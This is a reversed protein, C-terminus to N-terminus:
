KLGGWEPVGAPGNAGYPATQIWTSVKQVKIGHVKMRSLADELYAKKDGLNSGLAVYAVPMISDGGVYLILRVNEKVDHVRVMQTGAFVAAASLAM